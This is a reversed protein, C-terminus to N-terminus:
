QNGFDEMSVDKRLVDLLTLTNGGGFDIITDDGSKVIDIDSKKDFTKLIIDQNGDGGIADFDTIADKGDEKFFVFYDNGKGGTLIDKGLGGGIEDVGGRGDITDNGKGTGFSLVDYSGSGVIDDDGKLLQLLMGDFGTDSRMQAMIAAADAGLGSIETLKEGGADLFQMRNITGTAIDGGDYSFGTGRFVIETNSVDLFRATETTSLDAQLVATQEIYFSGFYGGEGLLDFYQMKAM